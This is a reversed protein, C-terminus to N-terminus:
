SEDSKTKRANASQAGFSVWAAVDTADDSSATANASDLNEQRIRDLVEMRDIRVQKPADIGLKVRGNSSVSVVTLVIDEGILIKQGVERTLTLM